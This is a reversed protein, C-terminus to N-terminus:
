DDDQDSYEYAYKQYEEESSQYAYDGGDSSYREREEASQDDSCEGATLEEEDPYDNRPNDEDELDEDDDLDSHSDYEDDLMLNEDFSELVVLATENIEAQQAGKDMQYVDIVYEEEEKKKELGRNKTVLDNRSNKSHIMKAGKLNQKIKRIDTITHSLRFLKRDQPNKKDKGKEEVWEDNKRLEELDKELNPDLSAFKEILESLKQQKRPADVVFSELPDEERKRKIKIAETKSTSTKEEGPIGPPPIPTPDFRQM